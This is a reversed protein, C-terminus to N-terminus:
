KQGLDVISQITRHAIYSFCSGYSKQALISKKATKAKNPVM